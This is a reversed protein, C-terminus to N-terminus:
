TVLRDGLLFPLVYYGWRRKPGPLYIEVRYEFEFLRAARARHWIVPNFPSLLSAAEIHKPLRAERHLYAPQQWGDVRVVRLDGSEVLEALRPRADRVPMRYYDALDDVTGVGHARAARRLLERQADGRGIQRTHHEEPILRETLDVGRAGV